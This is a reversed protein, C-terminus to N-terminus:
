VEEKMKLFINKKLENFPQTFKLDAKRPRKFNVKWEFAIHKNQLLLVRDALFLAEEISHTVLLITKKQQEWLHLLWQQMRERTHVDLAGYPEDMLIFEPDAALTRAFAVRQIQGGSLEHPYRKKKDSLDALELYSNMREREILGFRINEEVTLWPFVAHNQFVYGLRKPRVIKGTYSAFGALANLLTTKGCGSKGIIAVFEGPYIDLYIKELVPLPGYLATVNQIIVSKRAM